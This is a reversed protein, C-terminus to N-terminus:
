VRQAFDIEASSQEGFRGIFEHFGPVDSGADLGVVLVFCEAIIHVPNFVLERVMVDEDDRAGLVLLQPQYSRNVVCLRALSHKEVALRVQQRRLVFDALFEWACIKAWIFGTM